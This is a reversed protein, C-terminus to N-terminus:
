YYAELIENRLLSNGEFGETFDVFSEDVLLNIKRERCWGALRIVNDITIFNGSPNDPNILLLLDLNKDSYYEM